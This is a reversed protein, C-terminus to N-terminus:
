MEFSELNEQDVKRLTWIETGFLAISCIYCKVPKKGLNLDFKSTFLAKQKNFAAKAMAIQCKTERTCRADNTIMGGLYYFYEINEPQKQDIM